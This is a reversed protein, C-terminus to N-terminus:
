GYEKVLFGMDKYLYVGRTNGTLDTDDPKMREKWKVFAVPHPVQQGNEDYRLEYSEPCKGFIGGSDRFGAMKIVIVSKSKPGSVDSFKLDWHIGRKIEFNCCIKKVLSVVCEEVHEKSNKGMDVGSVRRDDAVGILLVGGDCNGFASLQRAILSRQKHNSFLPSDSTFEKLQVQKCEILSIIEQDVFHDPVEPLEKLPVRIYSNLDQKPGDSKMKLFDVVDDYSAEYVGADGPVFLNYKMTCVHSPANIFLLIKDSLVIRDFVDEYKSPRIMKRLQEEITQWFSDVPDKKSTSCTQPDSIKMELVGGGSNLLANCKKLIDESQNPSEENRSEKGEKKRRKKEKKQQTAYYAGISIICYLHNECFERYVIIIYFTENSFLDLLCFQAFYLISSPERWYRM